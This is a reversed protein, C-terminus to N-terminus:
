FIFRISGEISYIFGVQLADDHLKSIGEVPTCPVQHEELVGNPLSEETVSVLSRRIKSMKFWELTVIRSRHQILVAASTTAVSVEMASMNDVVVSVNARM